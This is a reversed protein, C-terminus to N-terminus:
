FALYAGVNFNNSRNDSGDHGETKVDSFEALVTLNKTLAHYVGATIKSNKDLLNPTALRDGDNAFDLKSVGYNVGLKTAGLTWTGQVLYGDSDRKNGLGDDGLVFLGTTGIGSGRYYSALLDVPGLKAKGTVDAGFAQYSSGNPLHQSQSIFSSSLYYNGSKYALKGHFGPASEATAAGQLLPEVPDFIGATLTLGHFDPTTYNMQALTDTYIYGFGISGLTTNSPAGGSASGAVGVGPLTMDNIIADFGFLGFNRGLTFSGIDANGVTMFVQRVDLGTTGLATNTGLSGSQQLNPSGGDNTSIGPYFGFTVAIDYGSQQTRAGFVLAAPLLGNSISSSNKEGGADVSCAGGVTVISQPHSECSSHIYHVNVNGNATFTWDGAQLEVAQASGTALLSVAALAAAHRPSLHKM